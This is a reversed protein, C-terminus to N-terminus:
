SDGMWDDDVHTLVFVRYVTVGGAKVKDKGLICPDPLPTGKCAPPTVWSNTAGDYYRVSLAGFSGPVTAADFIFTKLQLASTVESRIRVLKGFCGSFGAPCASAAYERSLDLQQIEVRLDANFAQGGYSGVQTSQAGGGATITAAQGAAILGGWSTNNAAYPDCTTAASGDTCASAGGGVIATATETPDATAYTHLIYFDATGPVGITATPQCTVTVPSASNNWTCSWSGPNTSVSLVTSGVPLTDALLVDPVNCPGWNTFTVRKQVAGGLAHSLQRVSVDSAPNSPDCGSNALVAAPALPLALTLTLLALLYAASRALSGM